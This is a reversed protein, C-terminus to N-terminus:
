KKVMKFSVYHLRRGKCLGAKPRKGPNAWSNLKKLCKSLGKRVVATQRLVTLVYKLFLNTSTNLSVLGRILSQYFILPPARYADYVAMQKM